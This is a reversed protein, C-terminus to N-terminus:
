AASFVQRNMFESRKPFSRLRGGSTCFVAYTEAFDERSNRQAYPTVYSREDQRIGYMWRDRQQQTLYKLFVYHGIEHFLVHYFSGTSEFQFLVIVSTDKDHFFMGRSSVMPVQNGMYSLTTPIARRPDYRIVQIGNVHRYPLTRVARVVQEVSVINQCDFNAVLLNM